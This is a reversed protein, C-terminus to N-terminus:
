KLSKFDFNKLIELEKDIFSELEDLEDLEGKIYKLDLDLHKGHDILLKQIKTRRDEFAARMKHLEHVEAGKYVVVASAALLIILLIFFLVGM